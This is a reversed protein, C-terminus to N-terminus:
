KVSFKRRAKKRIEELEKILRDIQFNLEEMNICSRPTIFIHGSADKSHKKVYIAAHPPGPLDAEKPKNFDLDLSYTMERRWEDWRKDSPQTTPHANGVLFASHHCKPNEEV